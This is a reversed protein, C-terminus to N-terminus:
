HFDCKDVSGRLGGMLCFALTGNATGEEQRRRLSIAM